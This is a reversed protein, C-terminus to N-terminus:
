RDAEIVMGSEASIRYIYQEMSPAAIVVEYVALDGSEDLNISKVTYFYKMGRVAIEKAIDESIYKGTKGLKVAEFDIHRDVRSPNTEDSNVDVTFVTVNDIATIHYCTIPFEREIKEAEVSVKMSDRQYGCTELYNLAVEIAEQESLTKINPVGYDGKDDFKYRNEIGTYADIYFEWFVNKGYKSVYLIISVTYEKKDSDYKVECSEVEDVSTKGVRQLANVIAEDKSIIPYEADGHPKKATGDIRESAYASRDLVCWYDTTGVTLYVDVKYDKRDEFRVDKFETQSIGLENSIIKLLEEDSRKGPADQETVDVQVFATNSEKGPTNDRVTVFYVPNDKHILSKEFAIIETKNEDFYFPFDTLQKIAYQKIEDETGDGGYKTLMCEQGGLVEKTEKNVYWFITYRDSTFKFRHYEASGFRRDNHDSYDSIDKGTKELVMNLAENVSIEGDQLYGIKGGYVNGSNSVKQSEDYVYAYYTVESDILSNMTVYQRPCGYDDYTVICDVVEISDASVNDFDCIFEVAKSKAYEESVVLSANVIGSQNVSIIDGTVAHVYYSHLEGDATLYTVHYRVTVGGNQWHELMVKIDSVDSRPIGNLATEVAKEVTIYVSNSRGNVSIRGNKLGISDRIISLDNVSLSALSEFTYHKESDIIDKIMQARGISINYMKALKSLEDDAQSITQSLVAGDISRGSLLDFIEDSMKKELDQGFDDDEATVSVLLSNQSDSIYEEDVMRNVLATVAEDLGDGKFDQGNIINEGDENNATVDVVQESKNVAIEVSPNVDLCVRARIDGDVTRLKSTLGNGGIVSVACVIIALAAAIGAFYKWVPKRKRKDTMLKIGGSECDALVSDLVDIKRIKEFGSALSKEINNM